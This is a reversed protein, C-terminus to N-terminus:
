VKLQQTNSGGGASGSAREDGDTRDKYGSSVHRIMLEAQSPDLNVAVTTPDANFMLQPPVPSESAQERSVGIEPMERNIVADCMAANSLSNRVSNGAARRVDTDWDAKRTGVTNVLLAQEYRRQTRRSPSTMRWARNNEKATDQRADALYRSIRSLPTNRDITALKENIRSLSRRNYNAIRGGKSGVGVPIRATDDGDKIKKLATAWKRVADKGAGKYHETLLDSVYISASQISHKRWNPEGNVKPCTMSLVEEAVMEREDKTMESRTDKPKIVSEIEPSCPKFKCEFLGGVKFSVQEMESTPLKKKVPSTVIDNSEPVPSQPTETPSASNKERGRKTPLSHPMASDEVPPSAIVALNTSSSNTNLIQQDPSTYVCTGLM